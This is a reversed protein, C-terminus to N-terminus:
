TTNDRARMVEFTTFTVINMVFIAQKAVSIGQDHTGSVVNSDSLTVNAKFTTVNAKFTTM